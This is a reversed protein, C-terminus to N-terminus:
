KNGGNFYSSVILDILKIKPIKLRKAEMDIKYYSNISVGIYKRYDEPLTPKIARHHAVGNSPM